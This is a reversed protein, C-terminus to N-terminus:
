DVLATQCSEYCCIGDKAAGLSTESLLGYSWKLPSRVTLWSIKSWAKHKDKVEPYEASFLFSQIGCTQRWHYTVASNRTNTDSRPLQYTESNLHSYEQRSFAISPPAQYAATWPTAFLRVRSLMKVKVKWKWANSFSIAVRNFTWISIQSRLLKALTM